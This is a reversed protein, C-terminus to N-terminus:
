KELSVVTSVCRVAKLYSYINTQINRKRPISNTVALNPSQQRKAAINQSASV